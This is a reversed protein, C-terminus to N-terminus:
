CARKVTAFFLFPTASMASLDAESLFNLTVFGALCRLTRARVFDEFFGTSVSICVINM